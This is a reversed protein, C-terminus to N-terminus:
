LTIALAMVARGRELPSGKFELENSILSLVLRVSIDTWM